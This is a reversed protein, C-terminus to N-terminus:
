PTVEEAPKRSMVEIDTLVLVHQREFADKADKHTVSTIRGRAQITIEDGISYWDVTQNEADTTAGSVTVRSRDPDKGEFSPIYSM